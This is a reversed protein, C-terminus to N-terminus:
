IDIAVKTAVAIQYIIQMIDKAFLLTKSDVKPLVLIRDGPSIGLDEALGVEGNQKAVLIHDEDARPSVGGASALYDDLSMKEDYSVAKPLVVEGTIQIVNSKQPIVIEDGDELWIDSIEKGRSVVVVGDPELQSVRKVFDQILAAEQTRVQAEEPSSSTATLAMQELRYLSDQIAKKQDRAVSLRRLYVADTAALNEEVGIQGLLEKLKVTRKIPFRSAGVVAGSVSAMITQGRKDAIFEIVDGEQLRFDEFEQLSLYVNFPKELRVGTVSVHSARPLPTAIKMLAKGNNNSQAPFEYMAQERIMGYAAVSVGKEEVLIVDGDKLRLPRLSGFLAFDYLDYKAITKGNRKVEILRYSGRDANIGGARDIFTLVSDVAGGAYRGPYNVFGTVFVGIPQSTQLNVYSNVNDTYVKRIANQVASLLQSHTIGGVKVPGVEPIFLNGQQDVILVDDYTRAGWIRIVVRDGPAIVYDSNLSESYTGAFRGSFLNSAFPRLPISTVAQLPSQAWAPPAVHVSNFQLNGPTNVNQITTSSNVGPVQEVPNRSPNGPVGGTSMPAPNGSKGLQATPPLLEVQASVLNPYISAMGVLFALVTQKSLPIVNKKFMILM